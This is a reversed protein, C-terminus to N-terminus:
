FFRLLAAFALAAVAVGVAVAVPTQWGPKVPPVPFLGSKKM